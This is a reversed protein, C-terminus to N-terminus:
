LMDNSISLLNLLNDLAKDLLYSLNVLCSSKIKFIKVNFNVLLKIYTVLENLCYFLVVIPYM